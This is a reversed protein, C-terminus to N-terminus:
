ALYVPRMQLHKPCPLVTQPPTKTQNTKTKRKAEERKELNHKSLTGTLNPIHSPLSNM